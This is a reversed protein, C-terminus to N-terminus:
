FPNANAATPTGSKPQAAVQGAISSASNAVLVTRNRSSDALPLANTSPTSATNSTPAAAAPNASAALLSTQQGSSDTASAAANALSNGDQAARAGKAHIKHGHLSTALATSGALGKPAKLDSAGFLQLFSGFGHGGQMPAPPAKMAKPVMAVPQATMRSDEKERLAPLLGRAMRCPMRFTQDCQLKGARPRRKLRARAIEAALRAAFKAAGLM